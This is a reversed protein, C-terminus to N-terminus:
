KRGKIFVHPWILVSLFFTFVFIVPAIWGGEADVNKYVEHIHRYNMITIPIHIMFGFLFWFIALGAIFELM